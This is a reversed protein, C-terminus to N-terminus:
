GTRGDLERRIIEKIIENFNERLMWDLYDKPVDSLVKNRHKKGFNLYIKENVIVLKKDPDAYGEPPKEFLLHHLEDVTKPLDPYRELQAKIVRFSARADALATHSNELKENLYFEVASTLNRGEKMRFIRYGDVMKFDDPLNAKLRGFEARLFNVDFEVNYGCVDCGRIAMFVKPGIVSFPLEREMMADTIGTIQTVRPPIPIGPNVLTEWDKERGDPFIKVIGIQIIRDSKSNTGTTELDIAVLPRKLLM